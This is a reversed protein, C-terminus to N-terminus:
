SQGFAYLDNDHSGVYVIGSPGIAPSSLVDGTTTYSWLEHGNVDVAYVKDDYSGVYVTGDAGVAPSSRMGEGATFSWAETGDPNIAYLKGDLSAAYVMGDPGVAPAAEIDDGTLFSWLETGDPNVAFLYDNNCGIYVTGDPGVAPSSYIDSNAHFQWKLTGDPNLAYLYDDYSGIYVTGDPGLAPSSYIQDATAYSWKLTGDPNLAYLSYDVGGIYVTGDGGIVPSSYFPQVVSYTWKGTGDPNVAHVQSDQGGVYITGDLAIAPSSSVAWGISYTWLNGGAADIAHLGDTSGVYVTGDAGVAPSSHVDGGTTYSWKVNNTQAGIHISARTHAANGGFMWWDSPGSPGPNIRVVASATDTNGGDDTVRVLAPFVGPNNYYHEATDVTGYSDYLADGNFDWEYLVITGDDTSASADLTVLAGESAYEPAVSLAAVPDTGGSGGTITVSVSDTDRAGDNDEVRVTVAFTGAETFTYNYTATDTLADYAGDGDVDWAYEIITGDSDTSATASLTSSLPAAGSSPTAQLDAVPAANNGAGGGAIIAVTDVDRAGQDDVVCLKANYVGAETYTNGASAVHTPLTDSWDDYIGDGDYDWGGATIAGDYDTSQSGDFDVSLPLDGTAPDALAVAVPRSNSSVLLSVAGCARAQGTRGVVRPRIIGTNGTDATVTGSTNGTIDFTGDGDLDFDYVGAGSATLNATYGVMGDVQDVTLQVSLPVGDLPTASAIASCVSENGTTDVAAIRVYTTGSLGSLFFHRSDDLYGVRRVNASPNEGFSAPYHYIRYGTLDGAAVPLWEVLLGGAVPTLVPASPVPPPTTDAADRPDAGVGVVDVVSGDWVVICVFLNGLGSLYNGAATDLCVQGDNFPGRWEWSGRAYDSLGVYFSSAGGGAAPRLNVDCNVAGPQTGALTLRYIALAATDAGSTLRLAAGNEGAGSAQFRDVGVVFENGDGLASASRGAPIVNGAGDVEEWPQVADAPLGAPFGTAAAEVVVDTGGDITALHGSGSCGCLASVGLGASLLILVFPRFSM